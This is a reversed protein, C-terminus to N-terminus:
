EMPINAAKIVNAWKAVERPLLDSMEAPSLLVIPIGQKLMASRVSDKPRASLPFNSAAFMVYPPDYGLNNFQSFPALNVRGQADVTSIWGIPRPVVISKFPDYKLGHDNKEPEYFM